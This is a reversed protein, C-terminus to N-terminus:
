KKILKKFDTDFSLVEGGAQQAKLHLFIDVFDIGANKKYLSLVQTIIDHDIITFYNSQVVSLMYVHTDARSIKYVKRLVYEVEILIVPLIILTRKGAKAEDIYKKAQPSHSKHDRLFFRIFINTDPFYPLM